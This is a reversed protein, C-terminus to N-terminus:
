APVRAKEKKEDRAQLAEKMLTRVVYARSRDEAKAVEDLRQIEEPDLRIGVFEKM